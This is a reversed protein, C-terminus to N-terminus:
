EATREDPDVALVAVLDCHVLAGRDLQAAMVQRAPRDLEDPFMTTWERNLASRDRYDAVWFTLKIIDEVGGGAAAMLDRIRAFVESLQADLGEPIEGTRPDRATLVGSYVFRGIRSAAPVPNAHAFSELHISTRPM